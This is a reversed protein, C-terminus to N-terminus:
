DAAQGGDTAPAAGRTERMKQHVQQLYARREEPSMAEVDQLKAILERQTQDQQRKRLRQICDSIAAENLLDNSVLFPSDELLERITESLKLTSPTSDGETEASIPEADDESEAQSLLLMPDIGGEPTAPTRAILAYLRRSQPTILLGPELRGLIFARWEASFLARLLQREAKEAGTLTPPLIPPPTPDGRPGEEFRRRRDGTNGWRGGYEQRSEGDGKRVVRQTGPWTGWNQQSPPRYAPPPPQETLGDRNAAATLPYGRDRPSQANKTQRAYTEADALIQEIARSIGLTAQLPHLHAFKQAYRARESLSRLSALLPIVEALADSRGEHTHVNHQRLILEIEFDVRPVANDLAAQFAATEGRRLLSDPDDGDPLRAVRVEAGEVGIAEWVSAGRLTARIGATDGDYCIIVHPNYRALMRAHEETMSTGLTAVCQAFGAQHATIVDVYGEVFVAPTDGSLKKRAFHLGYLTRSKDFLASGESNLYKAPDDGMARGGFAIVRGSVDQIPFMLRNRFADYHGRGEQQRGKILGIKAALELNARRQQLRFVLAEWDDPAFGIQFREQTEKLLARKVLYEQAVQSKALREQFFRVAMENLAFMEERESAKEPNAAKREFVIGARKALFELAEMFELNEKKMVFTFLDGKEGCSFCRYIQLDPVVSFSPKKDAHFPCLGTWNKGTKKLRTYQSVIEVFDTRAKIDEKIDRLDREM